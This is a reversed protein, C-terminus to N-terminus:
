EFYDICARNQVVSGIFESVRKHEPHIQYAALAEESEFLSNLVIDKNSSSLANIYVDLEIIGNISQKLAELESKVKKANEQNESNAFGEKYNWMVIHRLM